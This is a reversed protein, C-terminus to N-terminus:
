STPDLRGLDAQSDLAAVEGALQEIQTDLACGVRHEVKTPADLGELKSRREALGRAANIASIRDRAPIRPDDVIDFAASLLKDLRARELALVEEAPERVIARLGRQVRKHATATSSGMTIAIESYAHGRQRMELATRDLLAMQVPDVGGYERPRRVTVDMAVVTARVHKRM